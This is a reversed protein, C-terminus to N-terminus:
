AQLYRVIEAPLIDPAPLVPPQCANSTLWFLAQQDGVVGASLDARLCALAKAAYAQDAHLGSEALWDQAAASQPTPEGYAPGRFEPRWDITLEPMAGRAVGAGCLLSWTKEGLEAALTPNAFREPTVPVGVVEIERGALHFGLALGVASGMSGIALYVRKPCPLDGAAIQHDLELAANVFGLVGVPSSGGPPVWLPWAGERLRARLGLWAARLGLRWESACLNLDAEAVTSWLLNRRVYPAPKQPLLLATTALGIRRAHLATALTFNSGAFGVVFLRRRRERRAQGLLFELKRVKNGGYVKHCRDDRKLWFAPSGAPALCEVATPWRGLDVRPHAQALRPFRAFLPFHGDDQM